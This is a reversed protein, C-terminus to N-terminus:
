KKRVMQGTTRNDLFSHPVWGSMEPHHSYNVGGDLERTIGVPTTYFLILGADNTKMM